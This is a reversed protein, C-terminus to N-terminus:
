VLARSQNDFVLVYNNASFRVKKPSASELPEQFKDLGRPSNTTKKSLISNLPQLAKSSQTFKQQSSKYASFSLKDPEQRCTQRATDPLYNCLSAPQRDTPIRTDSGNRFTSLEGSEAESCQAARSRIAFQLEKSLALGQQYPSQRAQLKEQQPRQSFLGGPGSKLLYDAPNKQQSAPSKAFDPSTDWTEMSSIQVPVSPNQEVPKSYRLLPRIALPRRKSAGSQRQFFSGPRAKSSAWNFPTIGEECPVEEEDYFQDADLKSSATALGSGRAKSEISVDMQLRSSMLPQCDPLVGLSDRLRRGTLQSAQDSKNTSGLIM